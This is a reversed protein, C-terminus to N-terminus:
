RRGHLLLPSHTYYDITIGKPSLFAFRFMIVEFLPTKLVGDDGIRSPPNKKLHDFGGCRAREM